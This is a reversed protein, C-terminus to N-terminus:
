DRHPGNGPSPRGSSSKRTSSFRFLASEKVIRLLRKLPSQTSEPPRGRSYRVYALDVSKPPRPLGWFDAIAAVAKDPDAVLERQQIVLKPGPDDLWARAWRQLEHRLGCRVAQDLWEQETACGAFESREPHLRAQEARRYALVIEEADRLLLVIKTGRLKELNEPTPAIHQKYFADTGMWRRVQEDTILRMDSHYGCLIPYGEPLTQDNFFDQTAPREYVQGLTTVLSTSASKPIAVILM